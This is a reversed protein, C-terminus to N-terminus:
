RRRNRDWAGLFRIMFQISALLPCKIVRGNKKQITLSEPARVHGLTQLCLQCIEFSCPFSSHEYLFYIWPEDISKAGTDNEDHRARQCSWVIDLPTEDRVSRLTGASGFVLAGLWGDKDHEVMEFIPVLRIEITALKWSWHM